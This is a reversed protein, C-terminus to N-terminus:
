RHKRTKVYNRFRGDGKDRRGIQRDTREDTWKDAYFMEVRRIKICNSAHNKKELNHQSIIWSENFNSLFLPYKVNLRVLPLGGFNGFVYFFYKCYEYLNLANTWIWLV